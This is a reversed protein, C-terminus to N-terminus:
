SLRRKSWGRRELWRVLDITQIDTSINGVQATTSQRYYAAVPAHIPLTMAGDPSVVPTAPAATYRKNM